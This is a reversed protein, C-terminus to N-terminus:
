ILICNWILKRYRYKARRLIRVHECQGSFRYQVLLILMSHRLDIKCKLLQYRLVMQLMKISFFSFANWLRVTTWERKACMSASKARPIHTLATIEEGFANIVVEFWSVLIHLTKWGVILQNQLKGTRLNWTDNKFLNLSLKVCVITYLSLSLSRDNM